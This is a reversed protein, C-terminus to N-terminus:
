LRVPLLGDLLIDNPSAQELRSIAERRVYEAVLARLASFPVEIEVQKAGSETKGPAITVSGSFDGNHHIITDGHTFTHM